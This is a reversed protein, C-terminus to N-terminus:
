RHPVFRHLSSDESVREFTAKVRMGIRPEGEGCNVLWTMIRPGEDLDVLAVTYPVDKRFEEHLPRHSITFAYVTGLGSAPQYAVRDSLCHVCLPGPPHTIKGCDGCVQLTIRGESLGDWYAKTFPERKPPAKFSAPISGPVSM